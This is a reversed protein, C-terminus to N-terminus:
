GLPKAQRNYSSRIDNSLAPVNLYEREWEIIGEKNEPLRFGLDEAFRALKDNLLFEPEIEIIRRLLDFVTYSTATLYGQNFYLFVGCNMEEFYHLCLDYKQPDM